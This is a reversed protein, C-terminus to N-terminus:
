KGNGDSEIKRSILRDIKQALWSKVSEYDKIWGIVLALPILSFNPLLWPAVSNLGRALPVTILVALLIRILMYGIARMTSMDRPNSTLSLYAGAGAAAIIAAYPGLLQANELSTIVGLLAIIVEIPDKPPTINM